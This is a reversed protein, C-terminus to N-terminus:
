LFLFFFFIFLAARKMVAKAIVIVMWAWFGGAGLVVGVLSRKRWIIAAPAVVGGRGGLPRVRTETVGVGGVAPNGAGLAPREWGVLGAAADVGCGAAVTGGGM